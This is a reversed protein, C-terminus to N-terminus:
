RDQRENAAGKIKQEAQRLIGSGTMGLPKALQELYNVSVNMRGAELLYLYAQTCQAEECFERFPRSLYARRAAIVQGIAVCLPSTKVKTKTKTADM